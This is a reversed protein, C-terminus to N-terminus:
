GCRCAGFPLSCSLYFNHSAPCYTSLGWVERTCCMLCQLALVLRDPTHIAAFLCTLSHALPTPPWMCIGHLCLASVLLLAMSVITEENRGVKRGM